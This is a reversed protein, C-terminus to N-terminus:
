APWCSRERPFVANLVMADYSALPCRHWAFTRIFVKDLHRGDGLRNQRCRLNHADAPAFKPSWLLKVQLLRYCSRPSCTKSM